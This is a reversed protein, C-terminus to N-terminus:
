EGALGKVGFITGLFGILWGLSYTVYSIRTCWTYYTTESKKVDLARELVERQLPYADNLAEDLTEGLKNQLAAQKQARIAPSDAPSGEDDITPYEEVLANRTKEITQLRLEFPPQDSKPLREVLDRLNATIGALRMYNKDDLDARRTKETGGNSSLRNLTQRIDEIQLELQLNDRPAAQVSVGQDIAAILDKLDERVAERVVFTLLVLGAGAASLQKQYTNFFIKLRVQCKTLLDKLCMKTEGWRSQKVELGIFYTIANVHCAINM